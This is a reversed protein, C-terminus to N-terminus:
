MSARDGFRDRQGAAPLGAVLRQDNGVVGVIWAAATIAVGGGEQLAKDLGPDVLDGKVRDAVGLRHLLPHAGPDAGLGGEGSPPM